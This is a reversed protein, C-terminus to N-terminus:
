HRRLSPHWGHHRKIWRSPFLILIFIVAEGFKFACAPISPNLPIVGIAHEENLLRWSPLTPALNM